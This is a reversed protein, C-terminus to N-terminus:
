VEFAPTLWNQIKFKLNQIAQPAANGHRLCLLLAPLM